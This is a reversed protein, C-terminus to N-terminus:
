DTATSMRWLPPEFRHADMLSSPRVVLPTVTVIGGATTPHYAADGAFDRRLPHDGPVMGQPVTYLVIARGDANTTDSGVSPGNESQNQWDSSSYGIGDLM